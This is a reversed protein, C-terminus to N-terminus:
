RQVEYLVPGLFGYQRHCEDTSPEFTTLLDHICRVVKEVDVSRFFNQEEPKFGLHEDDKLHELRPIRTSDTM